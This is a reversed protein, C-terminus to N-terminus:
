RVKGYNINKSMGGIGANLANTPDLKKYHSSLTPKAIYQHGVNHEAPYEAGRTELIALLQEKILSPDEGKKILYDQHFVHCLFHGYYLQHVLKDTISAPLHEFWEKDNRRLAIDLAVISEVENHHVLGYQVAAGACAYRMLYADKADKGSVELVNIAGQSHLRELFLRTQEISAGKETLLLHHEYRNNLSKMFKPTPSPFLRFIYHIVRDLFSPGLMPVKSLVTDLQRKFKFFLPLFSSGFMRILFVTDRGYRDALSLIKHHMYEASVPLELNSQLIHNRLTQLTQTSNTSIFFTTEKDSALFSDLRVAFVALKGACGSAEHLRRPDANYRAPKDSSVDRVWHAYDQDSAKKDSTKVDESSYNGIQLNTLIEECTSGLNIDLNNILRLTGKNDIQAFLALETYAPGREVLAGGSNNCVGGVISAGICSSGIVSHPLRGKLALKKELDFLSAGSLAVVQNQSQLIQIDQIRMTNIVVTPRDCGLVPTSGGTLGTNAAQMIVIVDANVCAELSQWQQWLTAPKVVALAPGYGERFGKIYPALQRESTLVHSSGVISCLTKLLTLSTM